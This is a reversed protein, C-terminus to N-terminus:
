LGLNVSAGIVWPSTYRGNNLGGSRFSLNYLAFFNLSAKDGAPQSVGGGVLLADATLRSEGSTFPALSQVEYRALVFFPDFIDYQAFVNYGFDNFSQDTLRLKYYQYSIGVGTSFQETIKYGVLGNVSAYIQNDSIGLGNLGGGVFVNEMWEPKNNGYQAFSFHSLFLSLSLLLLNKKM